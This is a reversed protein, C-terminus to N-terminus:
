HPRPPPTAADRAKRAFDATDGGTTTMPPPPAAEARAAAAFGAADGVALSWQTAEPAGTLGQGSARSQLVAAKFQASTRVEQPPRPISCFTPYPETQAAPAPACASAGAAGASSVSPALGSVAGLTMSIAYALAKM